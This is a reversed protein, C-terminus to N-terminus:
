TEPTSQAMMIMAPTSWRSRWFLPANMSRPCDSAVANIIPALKISAAALPLSGSGMPLAENETAGWPRVPWPAARRPRAPALVAPANDGGLGLRLPVRQRSDDAAADFFVATEFGVGVPELLAGREIRDDLLPGFVFIRELDSIPQLLRTNGATDHL